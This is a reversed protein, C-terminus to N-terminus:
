WPAAPARMAVPVKSWCKSTAFPSVKGGENVSRAMM